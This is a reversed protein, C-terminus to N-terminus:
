HMSHPLIAFNKGSRDQEVLSVAFHCRRTPARRRDSVPAATQRRPIKTQRCSANRQRKNQFLKSVVFAADTM